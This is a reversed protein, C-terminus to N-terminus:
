RAYALTLLDVRRAGHSHLVSAAAATTAGTTFVDDILLFTGNAVPRERKLMFAEAVNAWRASRDLKTQTRTAHPRVLVDAIPVELATAVGQALMAAQNYGRELYRSRHLPVPVIGTYCAEPQLDSVAETMWEGLIHGYHPRNGYKLTHQVRQLAGGKDFVWLATAAHVTGPALPLEALHAGLATPDARELLRLCAPCLPHRGDAVRAHCHLCVPPYVLDLLAGGLKKGLAGAQKLGKHPKFM